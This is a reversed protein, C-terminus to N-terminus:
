IPFTNMELCILPYLVVNQNQKRDNLFNSHQCVIIMKTRQQNRHNLLLVRNKKEYQLKYPM